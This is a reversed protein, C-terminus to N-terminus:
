NKNMFLFLINIISAIILMLDLLNLVSSLSLFYSVGLMITYFLNFLKERQFQISKLGSKSLYGCSFITTFGFIFISAGAVFRLIENPIAMKVINIGTYMTLDASSSLVLLGTLTFVVCVFLVEFIEVVAQKYPDKKSSSLITGSLGTGLDVAFCLRQIVYGIVVGVSMSKSSFAETVVSHLIEILNKQSTLISVIAVGCYSIFAIPVSFKMLGIILNIGKNLIFYILSVLGFSFFMTFLNSSFKVSHISQTAQVLGNIFYGASFCFIYLFAVYKSNKFRDKIYFFAINCGSINHKQAYSISFYSERFKLSVCVLCVIWVWFLVGAGCKQVAIAGGLINGIGIVTGVCSILLGFGSIEKDNLDKLYKFFRFSDKLYLAKYRLTYFIGFFFFFFVIIPINAIKIFFLNLFGSIFDSFM